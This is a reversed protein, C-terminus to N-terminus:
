QHLIDHMIDQPLHDAVSFYQADVLVNRKTVGYEKYLHTHLGENAELQGLHYDQLEDDKSQIDEFDGLCNHWKRKAGGASEKFRGLMNSAPTDAVVTLLAGRLHIIRNHVQFDYGMDSGLINLEKIFPALIKEM